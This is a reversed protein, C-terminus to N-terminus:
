PALKYIRGRGTGAYLEGVNDVGFTTLRSITGPERRTEASGGNMRMSWITGSCWDGFYYRGVAAPVVRGRYVYGGTISCGEDHSYISAPFVLQGAGNPTASHYRARGEYINWGYNALVNLQSRARYDVEEWTGQGVDAIYLDGNAPDFSFRWPNRLGYGAVRWVPTRVYPNTRLLKGLRISLNQARNGPDGASGGDGMGVYLLKDPGFQLEGGNHNPYPQPVFLIQRASSPIAKGNRSRYEVVRTNGNVDTYDVYFRHNRAYSPSFAVSLLGREGGSLVRRRIDLFTGSVRGNVLYRIRGIQEVVYLRRPEAPSSALATIASFGSKYPRFSAEARTSTCPVSLALSCAVSVLPALM